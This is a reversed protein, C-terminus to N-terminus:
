WCPVGHYLYKCAWGPTGVWGSGCVHVRVCAGVFVCPERRHDRAGGEDVGLPRAKADARAARVDGLAEQLTFALCKRM